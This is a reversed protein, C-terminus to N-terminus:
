DNSRQIFSNSCCHCQNYEQGRQEKCDAMRRHIKVISVVNNIELPIRCRVVTTMYLKDDQGCRGSAGCPHVVHEGGM